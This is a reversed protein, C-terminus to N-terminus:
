RGVRGRARLPGDAVERLRAYLCMDRRRGGIEQHQRLLGEHRYGAQEATRRSGINDPEIYLEIRHLDPFTWGFDTLARLAHTAVGRGRASPRVAYGATARGGPLGRTWLGAFGLPRDEEDAICFSFGVDEALRAHQRGIWALAAAPDADAPLSGILPIYPDTALDQVMAVDPECFARLTM